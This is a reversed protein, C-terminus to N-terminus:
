APPRIVVVSCHAHRVVQASVSGLLLSAFGGHGRSGVVVLDAERSLELLVSTPQGELVEARVEVASTDGLAEICSQLRLSAQEELITTNPLGYPGQAMSTALGGYPVEWVLVARVVGGGHANAEAVAWRLADISAESGDVGVVYRGPLVAEQQESV